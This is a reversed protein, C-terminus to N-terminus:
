MKLPQLNLSKSSRIAKDLNKARDLNLVNSLDVGQFDTGMLNAGQRAGTLNTKIKGIGLIEKFPDLTSGSRAADIIVSVGSFDARTLDAKQLNAETLDAGSLCAELLNTAVLNGKTLNANKLNAGSLNASYLNAGYLFARQLWAGQLNTAILQAYELNAPRCGMALSFTLIGRLWFM